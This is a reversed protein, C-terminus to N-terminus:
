MAQRPADQCPGRGVRLRVKIKRPSQSLLSWAAATM